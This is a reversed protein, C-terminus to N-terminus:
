CIPPLGDLSLDLGIKGIYLRRLLLCFQGQWYSDSEYIKKKLFAILCTLDFESGILSEVLLFQLRPALMEMEKVVLRSQSQAQESVLAQIM